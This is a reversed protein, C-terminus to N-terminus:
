YVWKIKGKTYLKVGSTDNHYILDWDKFREPLKADLGTLIYNFEDGKKVYSEHIFPFNAYYLNHLGYILVKDNETINREFYNDVDFFDGFNYNLNDTLFENKSEKGTLYPTFKSIALGRYVVTVISILIIVSFFFTKLFASKFKVLVFIVLVSFAPLYPMLFRGGGTRPTLYWVTLALLSYILITKELNSMKKYVIFILPVTMLYIPSIPDQAFLLVNLTDKLFTFPNLIDVGVTVEYLPSFIPYFPNGTKLFSFFLFPLVVFISSSIFIGYFRLKDKIKIKQILFLISFIGLSTAALWKTSIAAGAMLGSEFAWKISREKQFYIFGVLALFEFFTRGLDIYATTSQWAVVPNAYFILAALLANRSTVYNRAFIFITILTLIGFIFHVVKALVEGGLMISPIYLIDILKPMVSYYFLGGPIFHISQEEIFIKPITLHYWLADFAVEPSLAGLLNVFAQILLIFLLLISLKDKQIERLYKVALSVVKGPNGKKLMYWLAILYITTSGVIIFLPNLLHLLGIGFITYGYLEILIALAFM